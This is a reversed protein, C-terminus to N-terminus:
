YILIKKEVNYFFTSILLFYSIKDFVTEGVTFRQKSMNFVVVKGRGIGVSEGSVGEKM